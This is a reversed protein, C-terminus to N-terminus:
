PCRRINKKLTGHKGRVIITDERVEAKMTEPIQIEAM